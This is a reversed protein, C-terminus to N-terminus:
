FKQSVEMQTRKIIYDIPAQQCLTIRIKPYMSTMKKTFTHLIFPNHKIAGGNCYLTFVDGNYSIQKLAACALLVLEHAARTSIQIACADNKATAEALFSGMKALQANTYSPRFLWSALETAQQIGLYNFVAKKLLTPEGRGDEMKFIARVVEQGLWYGSGEDGARHGWGGARVIQQKGNSAYAIAGTGAILMAGAQGSTVGHFTAEADNEIILKDIDLRHTAIAEHVTTAVIEYDRASDIGAMAFTAAAIKQSPQQQLFGHVQSLLAQLVELTNDIGIAQYNSGSTTKIFHIEGSDAHAVACATKTAGGDIILLWKTM